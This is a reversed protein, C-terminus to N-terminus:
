QITTRRDTRTPQLPMSPSQQRQQKNITNIDIQLIISTGCNARRELPTIRKQM